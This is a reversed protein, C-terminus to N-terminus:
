SAHAGGAGGLETAAMMQGAGAKDRYDGVAVCSGRGTCQVANLEADPNKDANAPLAVANARGWGEKSEAAIFGHQYGAKSKYVGVAVCSRAGTCAVSYIAAFGHVAAANAPLRLAQGPSWKGGPLSAVM